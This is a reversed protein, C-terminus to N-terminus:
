SILSFHRGILVVVAVAVDDVGDLTGEMLGNGSTLGTVLCVGSLLWIFLIFGASM